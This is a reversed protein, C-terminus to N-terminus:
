FYKCLTVMVQGQYLGIAFLCNVAEPLLPLIFDSVITSAETKLHKYMFLKLLLYVQHHKM